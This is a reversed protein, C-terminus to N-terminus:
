EDLLDDDDIDNEVDDVMEKGDKGEGPPFEDDDDIEDDDDDDDDDDEDDEDEHEKEIIDDLLIGEKEGDEKEKAVMMADITMEPHLSPCCECKENCADSVAKEIAERLDIRQFEPIGIKEFIAEIKTFKLPEVM